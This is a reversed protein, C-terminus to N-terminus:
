LRTKQGVPHASKSPVHSDQPNDSSGVAELDPLVDGGQLLLRCHVKLTLRCQEVCCGGVFFELMRNAIPKTVNEEHLSM